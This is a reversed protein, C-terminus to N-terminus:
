SKGGITTFPKVIGFADNVIGLLIDLFSKVDKLATLWQPEWMHVIAYRRVLPLINSPVQGLYNSVTVDWHGFWRGTVGIPGQKQTWLQTKGDEALFVIIVAGHFGALATDEWVRTTAYTDGNQFIAVTTEMHQSPALNTKQTGIAPFVLPSSNTPTVALPKASRIGESSPAAEIQDVPAFFPGEGVHFMTRGGVNEGVETWTLVGGDLTGWLWTQRYPDFFAITKREGKGELDTVYLGGAGITYGATSGAFRWNPAEGEGSTSLYFSGEDFRLLENSSSGSFRGTWIQGPATEQAAVPLVFVMMALPTVVAM